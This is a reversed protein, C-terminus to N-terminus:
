HRRPLSWFSWEASWGPQPLKPSIPKHWCAPKSWRSKAGTRLCRGGIRFEHRLRPRASPTHWSFSEFKELPMVGDRAAGARLMRKVKALDYDKPGVLAAIAGIQRASHDCTGARFVYLAESTLEAADEPLGFLELIDISKDAQDLRRLASLDAAAVVVSDAPALSFLAGADFPGPVKEQENNEQDKKEQEKNAQLDKNQDAGLMFGPWVFATIGFILLM